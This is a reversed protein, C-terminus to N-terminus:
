SNLLFDRDIYKLIAREKLSNTSKMKKLMKKLSEIRRQLILNSNLERQSIADLFNLIENRVPNM